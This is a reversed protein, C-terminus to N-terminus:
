VTFPTLNLHAPEFSHVAVPRPACTIQTDVAVAQTHGIVGFAVAVVILMGHVAVTSCLSRATQTRSRLRSQCPM